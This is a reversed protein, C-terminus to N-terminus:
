GVRNLYCILLVLVLAPWEGDEHRLQSDSSRQVSQESADRVRKATAAYLGDAASTHTGTGAASLPQVQDKIVGPWRKM